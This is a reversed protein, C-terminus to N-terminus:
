VSCVKGCGVQSSWFVASTYIPVLRRVCVGVGSRRTGSGGGEGTGCGIEVRGQDWVWDWIPVSGRGEGTGCGFRWEVRTGSGSQGVKKWTSLTRGRWGRGSLLNHSREIMHSREGLHHGVAMKKVDSESDYVSRRTEKVQASHSPLPRTTSGVCQVNSVHWSYTLASMPWMCVDCMDTHVCACVRM